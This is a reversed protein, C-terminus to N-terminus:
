DSENAGAVMPQPTSIDEDRSRLSTVLIANLALDDPASQLGQWVHPLALSFKGQEVYRMARIRFAEATGCTMVMQDQITEADLKLQPNGAAMSALEEFAAEPPNQCELSRQFCRAAEASKREEKACHGSLYWIEASDAQLQQLMKLHAQADSCRGLDVAIRAQQLRLEQQPLNNRLLEENMLFAQELASRTRIHTSLLASLKERAEMDSSRFALYQSLATRAKRYDQAELSAYASQRLFEVTKGFQLSHLKTTGFMLALTVAVVILAARPNVVRHRRESKTNLVSM